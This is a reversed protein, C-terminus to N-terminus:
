EWARFPWPPARRISIASRQLMLLSEMLSSSRSKRRTMMRNMGSRDGRLLIQLTAWECAHAQNTPSDTGICAVGPTFFAPICGGPRLDPGHLLDEEMQEQQQQQQQQMQQQAAQQPQESQQTKSGSDLRHKVWAGLITCGNDDAVMAISPISLGERAMGALVEYLDAPSDRCITCPVCPYSRRGWGPTHPQSHYYIGDSWWM